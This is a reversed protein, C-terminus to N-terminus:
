PENVSPLEHEPTAGSTYEHAIVCLDGFYPLSRSTAQHTQTLLVLDILVYQHSSGNAVRPVSCFPICM